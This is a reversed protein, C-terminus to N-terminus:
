IVKKLQLKHILWNQLDYFRFESSISFNTNNKTTLVLYGKVNNLSYWDESVSEVERLDISRNLWFRTWSTRRLYHGEIQYKMTLDVPYFLFTFAIMGFYEYSLFSFREGHAPTITLFNFTLWLWLVVVASLYKYSRSVLAGKPLEIDMLQPPVGITLPREYTNSLIKLQKTIFHGTRVEEEDSVQRNMLKLMRLFVAMFAGVLLIFLMGLLLVWLYSQARIIYKSGEYITAVIFSFLYGVFIDAFPLRFHIEVGKTKLFIWAIIFALTLFIWAEIILNALLDM